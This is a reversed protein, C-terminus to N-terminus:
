GQNELIMVKHKADHAPFELRKVLWSEYDTEKELCTTNKFVITIRRPARSLSDRIRDLVGRLTSGGFPSYFFFVTADPPIDFLTADTTVVQANKCRLRSRALSLNEMAIRALDPSIEVGIVQRFSYTAAVVVVRGKGSGYDIFVDQEPQIRLHRFAEFISRYDSPTYHVSDPNTIGAEEQSMRGATHIGLRREFYSEWFQERAYAMSSRLGQQRIRSFARTVKQVFGMHEDKRLRGWQLPFSCPAGLPGKVDRVQKHGCRAGNFGETPSPMSHPTFGVVRGIVLNRHRTAAVGRALIGLAVFRLVERHAAEGRQRDGAVGLAMQDGGGFDGDPRGVLRREEVVQRALGALMRGPIPERGVGGEKAKTGSGGNAPDEGIREGDDDGQSATSFVDQPM